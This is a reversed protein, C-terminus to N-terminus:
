SWFLVEARAAVESSDRPTGKSERPVQVERFSCSHSGSTETTVRSSGQRLEFFGPSEGSLALQPGKGRRSRSLFAM